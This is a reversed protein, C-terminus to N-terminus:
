VVAPVSGTVTWILSLPPEVIVALEVAFTVTGGNVADLTLGLAVSPAAKLPVTAVKRSVVGPAVALMMVVDILHPSPEVEAPETM